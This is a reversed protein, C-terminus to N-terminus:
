IGFLDAEISGMREMMVYIFSVPLAAYILDASPTAHVQVFPQDAYAAPAACADDACAQLDERLESLSVVRGTGRSSCRVICTDVDDNSSFVRIAPLYKIGQSCALRNTADDDVFINFFRTDADTSERTLQEFRAYTAKCRRCKANQFFVVVQEAPSASARAVALDEVSTLRALPAPATRQISHPPKFGSALAISSVALLRVARTM